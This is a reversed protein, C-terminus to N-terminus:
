SLIQDALRKGLDAAMLASGSTTKRIGPSGEAKYFVASLHLCVGDYIRALAGVPAHCGAGLKELFAREALVRVMSPRHSIREILRRTESDSNRAQLAIAGQCPAPLIFSTDLPSVLLGKVDPRLRELGAHALLIGDWDHNERLKRIRTDINGRVPVFRAKPHREQWQYRRRLSGTALLPEPKKLLVDLPERSIVVDHVPARTLVGSLGLGDPMEVGLDKASHVALDVRNELLAEEIEKTFIAKTSEAPKDDSVQMRDGSTTIVVTEVRLDPWAETLLRSTM